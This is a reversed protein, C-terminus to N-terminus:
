FPIDDPQRKTVPPPEPGRQPVARRQQPDLPGGHDGFSLCPGPGDDADFCIILGDDFEIRLRDILGTTTSLEVTGDLPDTGASVSAVTRGELRHAVESVTGGPLHGAFKLGLAASLDRHKMDASWTADLTVARPEDTILWAFTPEQAAGVDEGVVDVEILTRGELRRCLTQGDIREYRLGTCALGWRESLLPGFGEAAAWESLSCYSDLRDLPWLADLLQAARVGAVTCPPRDGHLDLIRFRVALCACVGRYFDIGPEDVAARAVLADADCDLIANLVRRLDAM